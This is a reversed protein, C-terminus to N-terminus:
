ARYRGSAGVIQLGDDVVVLLQDLLFGLLRERLVRALLEGHRAVGHEAGPPIGLGGVVALHFLNRVVDARGGAHLGHHEAVSPSVEAVPTPKM